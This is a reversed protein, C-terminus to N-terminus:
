EGRVKGIAEGMTRFAEAIVDFQVKLVASVDQDGPPDIRVKKSPGTPQQRAPRTSRRVQPIEVIPFVRISSGSASPNSRKDDESEPINDSLDLVESYARKGGKKPPSM